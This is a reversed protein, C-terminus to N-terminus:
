PWLTLVDDDEVCEDFLALRLLHLGNKCVLQPMPIVHVRCLKHTDRLKVDEGDKREEWREQM